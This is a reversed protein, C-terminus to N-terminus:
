NTAAMELGIRFANGSALAGITTAPLSPLVSTDVVHINRWGFPRGFPDTDTDRAPSETMPFTGGLHYGFNGANGTAKLPAPFLGASRMIKRFERGALKRAFEDGSTVKVELPASGDYDLASIRLSINQAISSHTNLIGGVIRAALSSRIRGPPLRHKQGLRLLILENPFSLQGHVWHSSSPEHIFDVFVTSQTNTHPWTLPLPRHTLFLELSSGTKLLQVPSGYMGMSSLLIRTSNVAGAALYVKSATYTRIEETERDRARVVVEDGSERVTLVVLDKEYSIRGENLLSKIQQDSSFISEYVCGVNCLGCYHCTKSSSAITDTMLNSQGVVLPSTSATASSAALRRLLEQQGPDQRLSSASVQERMRPFYRHLPSPPESTAVDRFVQRISSILLEYSVPWDAVDSLNPLLYAGGWARSFGGLATSYPPSGPHFSGDAQPVEDQSYMFTSGLYTKVPVSGRNTRPETMFELGASSWEAPSSGSLRARIAERVPELDDGIDLVLPKGGRRLIGQIAAWACLGSGIVIETM